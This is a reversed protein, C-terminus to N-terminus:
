RPHTDIAVVSGGGGGNTVIIAVDGHKVDRLM